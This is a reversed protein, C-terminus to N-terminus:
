LPLEWFVPLISFIQAWLMPLVSIVRGRYLLLFVSLLSLRVRAVLARGLEQTPQGIHVTALVSDDDVGVRDYSHEDYVLALGAEGSDVNVM